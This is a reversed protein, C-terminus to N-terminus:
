RSGKGHKRGNIQFYYLPVPTFETKPHSHFKNLPGKAVERRGGRIPENQTGYAGIASEMASVVLRWVSMEAQRRSLVLRCDSVSEDNGGLVGAVEIYGGGRL